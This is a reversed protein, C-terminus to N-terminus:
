HPFYFHYGEQREQGFNKWFERSIEDIDEAKNNNMEKIAATMENKM